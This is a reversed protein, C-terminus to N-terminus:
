YEILLVMVSSEERENWSERRREPLPNIWSNIKERKEERDQVKDYKKWIEMTRKVAMQAEKLPEAARRICSIESEFNKITRRDEDTLKNGLVQFLLRNQENCTKIMDM